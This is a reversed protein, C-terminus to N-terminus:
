VSHCGRSHLFFGPRLVGPNVRPESVQLGHLRFTKELGTDGRTLLEFGLGVYKLSSAPHGGRTPSSSEDLLLSSLGWHGLTPEPPSPSQHPNGTGGGAKKPPSTRPFHRNVFPTRSDGTDSSDSLGKTGGKGKCRRGGGSFKGDRASINCLPGLLPCYFVTQRSPPSPHRSRPPLFCLSLTLLEVTVILLLRSM